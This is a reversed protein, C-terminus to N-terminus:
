KLLVFTRDILKVLLALLMWDIMSFYLGYGIYAKNVDTVGVAFIYSICTIVCCIYLETIAVSIKDKKNYSVMFTYAAVAGIIITAVVLAFLYAEKM